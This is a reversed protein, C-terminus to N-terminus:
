KLCEVTDLPALRQTRESIRSSDSKQFRIHGNHLGVTLDAAIDFFMNQDNEKYQSM